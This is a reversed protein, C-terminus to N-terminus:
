VGVFSPAGRDSMYGFKRFVMREFRARHTTAAVGAIVGNISEDWYVNYFRPNGKRKLQAAMHRVYHHKPVMHVGAQQALGVHLEGLNQLEDCVDDPLKRGHQDLM